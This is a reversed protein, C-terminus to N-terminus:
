MDCSNARSEERVPSYWQVVYNTTNRLPFTQTGNENRERKERRKKKATYTTLVMNKAEQASAALQCDTRTWNIPWTLALVARLRMM